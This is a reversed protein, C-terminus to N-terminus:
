SRISSSAPIFFDYVKTGCESCRGEGDINQLKLKYGSRETVVTGCEPCKTDQGTEVTSNGIYVHNLRSAAIEFLRALSKDSTPMDERKYMPHYRSLHLPINKGLEGAIWETELEMEKEDDNQGPIILTTIELHRGSLAIQKLSRRVPELDAGTLKRYFTNNFAKLDINFADIFEVIEALPGDNVYGNSVMVTKLGEKRAGLAIDRMYEFGVVPENYTFAIGINREIALADRVIKEPKVSTSRHPPVNQSIHYNQCFDCRMNCGYSGISLINFGPYFHYLPKKELPDLAYGSIIGYTLLEINSGTNRRVGCIGTKGAALKCLHPCLTCQLKNDIIKSLSVM